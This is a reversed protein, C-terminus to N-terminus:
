RARWVRKGRAKFAYAARIRFLQNARRVCPAEGHRKRRLEALGSDRRFTKFSGGVNRKFFGIGAPRDGLNMEVDVRANGACVVACEVFGGRIGLGAARDRAQQLGFDGHRRLEVGSRWAARLSGSFFRTGSQRHQVQFLIGAQAFGQAGREIAPGFFDAQDFGIAIAFARPQGVGLKLLDRQWEGGAEFLSAEGGAIAGRDDHGILRLPQNRGVGNKITAAHEHREIVLEGGFLMQLQQRM